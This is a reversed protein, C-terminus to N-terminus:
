ACHTSVNLRQIKKVLYRISCASAKIGCALCWPIIANKLAAAYDSNPSTKGADVAKKRSAIKHLELTAVAAANYAIRRRVKTAIYHGKEICGTDDWVAAEVTVFFEPYRKRVDAVRM